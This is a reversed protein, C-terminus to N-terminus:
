GIYKELCVLHVGEIGNFTCDVVGAEKYGFKNRYGDVYDQKNLGTPTVFDIM